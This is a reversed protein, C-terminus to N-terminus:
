LPKTAFINKVMQNFHRDMIIMKNGLLEYLNCPTCTTFLPSQDSLIGDQFMVELLALAISKDFIIRLSM